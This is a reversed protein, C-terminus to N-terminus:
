ATRGKRERKQVHGSCDFFNTRQEYTMQYWSILSEFFETKEKTM